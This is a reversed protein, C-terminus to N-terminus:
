LLGLVFTSHIIVNCHISSTKLIMLCLVWKYVWLVSSTLSFLSPHYKASFEESLVKFLHLQYKIRINFIALPNILIWFFYLSAIFVCFLSLDCIYIFIYTHFWSMFTRLFHLAPIDKKKISFFLNFGFYRNCRIDFYTKYSSVKVLM